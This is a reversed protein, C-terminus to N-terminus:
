NVKVDARRANLFTNFVLKLGFWWAYVAFASHCSNDDLLGHAIENRLNPGFADCFLAKIEFALDDGFVQIAEPLDMLTSLCNENEIGNKDLTTTKAGANKLHFRVMNEIQPVLLHIASVFDLEYGAFLAKGFLQKRGVPVIPSHSAISIFDRESLRHELLLVELAPLISAKVTLDLTSQYHRVMQAWVVNQYESSSTDGFGIGSHKAVVRGDQSIHTAAFLAQFPFERLMKKSFQKIQDFRAGQSIGAFAALAETASKDRVLSRANEILESIDIPPTSIVGMESLSKEGAEGMQKHLEAIREDIKYVAREKRPITRYTQIANEYFDAALTYSPKDPSIRAVAEKVWSEAVCVIMEVAKAINKAKQFWEASANFFDRARHLDDSADFSKALLELKKAIEDHKDSGLGNAALVDALWLAFYGDENKALEFASIISSEMEKLRDGAGTRLMRALRIAREWCQRGGSKWTEVDLSITRYADIALLALRPSRPRRLLWALDAIRARLWVHDIEEAIESFLAIDDEQFDSPIVSRKGNMIAFPKFPENISNPDLSMSSADALLWLVKGESFKKSEIAARAAASLSNWIKQYSQEELSSIVTQYDSKRFDDISVTLGDPYRQM